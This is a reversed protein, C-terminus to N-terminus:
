KMSTTTATEEEEEKEARHLKWITLQILHLKYEPIRTRVHISMHM